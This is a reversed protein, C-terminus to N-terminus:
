AFVGMGAAFVITSVYALFIVSVGGLGSCLRDCYMTPEGNASLVRHAM